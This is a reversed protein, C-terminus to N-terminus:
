LPSGIGSVNIGALGSVWAMTGNVDIDAKGSRSSLDSKNLPQFGAPTWADMIPTTTGMTAFNNSQSTGLAADQYKATANTPWCTVRLRFHKMDRQM